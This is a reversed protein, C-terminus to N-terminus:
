DADASGTPSVPRSAPVTARERPCAAVPGAATAPAASGTLGGSQMGVASRLKFRLPERSQPGEM